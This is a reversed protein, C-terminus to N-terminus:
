SMSRLKISAGAVPNLEASVIKKEPADGMVVLIVLNDFEM